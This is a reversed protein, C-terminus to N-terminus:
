DPTNIMAELEDLRQQQEQVVKTLVAIIDMPSLSKRDNMAVLAPVDEAIFGLYQEGSEKVYNYKQPSLGSLAAEAEDVTLNSINEKLNRSSADTWVGGTTVHAGSAMTLPYNTADPNGIGLYGNDNLRLVETGDVDIHMRGGGEDFHVSNISNYSGDQSMFNISQSISSSNLLTIGTHDQDNEIVLDNAWTNPTAPCDAKFIHLQAQPQATGVGVFGNANVTFVTDMQGYVNVVLVIALVSVGFLIKSNKM